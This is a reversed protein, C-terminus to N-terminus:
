SHVVEQAQRELTAMFALTSNSLDSRGHDVCTQAFQALKRKLKPLEKLVATDKREKEQIRVELAQIQAQYDEIIEQDTRRRYTRKSM